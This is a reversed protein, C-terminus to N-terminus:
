NRNFTANLYREIISWLREAEQAKAAALTEIYEADELTGYDYEYFAENMLDDSEWRVKREEERLIEVLEEIKM